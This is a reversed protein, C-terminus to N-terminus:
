GRLWSWLRKYWPERPEAHISALLEADKRIQEADFIPQAIRQLDQLTIRELPYFGQGGPGMGSLLNAASAEPGPIVIELDVLDKSAEQLGQFAKSAEAASTALRSTPGKQGQEMQLRRAKAASAQAVRRAIERSNASGIYVAPGGSDYDGQVAEAIEALTLWAQNM